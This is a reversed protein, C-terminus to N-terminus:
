IRRPTIIPQEESEEQEMFNDEDESKNSAEDQQESTQDEQEAIAFHESEAGEDLVHDSSHDSSTHPIYEGEEEDSESQMEEDAAEEQM